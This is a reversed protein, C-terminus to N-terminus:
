NLHKLHHLFNRGLQALGGTRLELAGKPLSGMGGMETRARLRARDRRNGTLAFGARIGGALTDGISFDVDLLWAVPKVIFLDAMPILGGMGLIVVNGLKTDALGAIVAELVRKAERVPTSEGYLYKEDLFSKQYQAIAAGMGGYFNSADGLGPVVDAEGAVSGFDASTALADATSTDNTEKTAMLAVGVWAPTEVHELAEPASM